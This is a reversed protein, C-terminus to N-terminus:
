FFINFFMLDINKTINNSTDINFIFFVLFFDNYYIKLNFVSKFLMICWLILCVILTAFLHCL